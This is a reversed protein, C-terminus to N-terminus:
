QGLVEIAQITPFETVKEFGIVLKGDTVAVDKFDKVVVKGFGGADKTIDYKELVPKDQISVTFVRMGPTAILDYIEVFHLRVNYKGNPVDFRYSTMGWRETGYLPDLADMPHSATDGVGPATIYGYKRTANYAGDASWVVGNKDTYATRSGCDVRIVTKGEVPKGAVPPVSPGKPAVARATSTAATTGVGKVASAPATKEPAKAVETGKVEPRQSTPECGVLIAVLGLTLVSVLLTRM